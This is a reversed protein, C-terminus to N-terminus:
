ERRYSTKPSIKLKVNEKKIRDRDLILFAQAVEQYSYRVRGGHRGDKVPIDSCNKAEYLWRSDMLFRFFGSFFSCAFVLRLFGRFLAEIMM